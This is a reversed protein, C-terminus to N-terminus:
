GNLQRWKQEDRIVDRITSRNLKFRKGLQGLTWKKPDLKHLDCIEVNRRITVPSSKRDRQDKLKEQELKAQEAAIKVVWDRIGAEIEESLNDASLGPRETLLEVARKVIL